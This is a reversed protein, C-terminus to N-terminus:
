EQRLDKILHRLKVMEETLTDQSSITHFFDESKLAIQQALQIEVIDLYHTLKEQLLRTTQANTGVDARAPSSSVLNQATPESFIQRFTNPDELCFDSTKFIKPVVDLHDSFWILDNFLLYQLSRRVVQIGGIRLLADLQLHRHCRRRRRRVM